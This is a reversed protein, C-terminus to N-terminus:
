RLIQSNGLISGINISNKDAKVIPICTATTSYFDHSRVALEQLFVLILLGKETLVAAALEIKYM